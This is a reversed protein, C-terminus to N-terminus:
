TFIKAYVDSVDPNSKFFSNVYAIDYRVLFKAIEAKYVDGGYNQEIQKKAIDIARMADRKSLVGLVVPIESITNGSAVVILNDTTTKEYYEMREEEDYVWEYTKPYSM